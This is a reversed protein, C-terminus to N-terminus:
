ETPSPTVTRWQFVMRGWALPGAGTADRASRPLPQFRASSALKLAQADADRRGCEAVLVSSIAHGDADVAVRVVSNSLVDPHRWSPLALPKALPRSALEGEIRLRSPQAFPEDRVNPEYRLLPPVPKDAVLPATIGSTATYRAFDGGLAAEDLALWRPPESWSEARYELPEVRLRAAGPFGGGGPLAFLTPDNMAPLRALQESSWSDSVLHVATRFTPRPTPPQEGQSVYFLLGVQLVFVAAISYAWRRASWASPQPLAANM